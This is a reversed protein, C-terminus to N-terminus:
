YPNGCLPELNQFLYEVMLIIDALDVLGNCDVDGVEVTPQPAHQGEFVYDLLCAIDQVTIRGNWNVDGRLKWVQLVVDVALPSNTAGPALITLTEHHEGLAYGDPNVVLPSADPVSGSTVTPFLWPISESIEWNMCGANYNYISLDDCFQPGSDEQYPIVIPAVPVYILPPEAATQYNFLVEIPQPNNQAWRSAVLITDHYVGTPSEPLLANVQYTHPANIRAHGDVIELRDEPYILFLEMPNDGGNNTVTFSGSPLTQEYGQWCEFVNFEFLNTSLQIESPYELLRMICEVALPSNSAQDSYVWVTDKVMDPTVPFEIPDFVYYFLLEVDQPSSGAVPTVNLIHDSHEEVHFDLIGPGGNRVQFTRTFMPGENPWQIAWYNPTSDVVIFPLDSAISLRVPIRIPSNTAAPDSVVVTDYYMGYALSSSTVTLTVTGSNMGSTPDLGLWTENNTVSWNLTSQGANYISLAQTPPNAGGTLANFTFSTRDVGIQPAAPNLLLRAYVFQPSNSAGPADVRISDFYTGATLGTTTISVTVNQSTTGSSPSKLLWPATEILSFSLPDRDSAVNFIQSPPNAQGYTTEFYLTDESLVLNSIIPKNADYIVMRAKWFPSYEANSVDVFDFGAGLVQGTDLVISDLVTWSSLVFQYSAVHKAVMSGVLGASFGRSGTCQFADYKNTSDIKNNRYVFKLFDFAALGDAVFAGNTMALNINQWKFGLSISNLTQVDNFLWLDMVVNLQNTAADPRVSFEMRVTDALGQDDPDQAARTTGWSTALLAVAFLVLGIRRNM